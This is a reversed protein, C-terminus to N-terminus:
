DRADVQTRFPHETSGFNSFSLMAVRPEIDFNKAADSALIAIEAM